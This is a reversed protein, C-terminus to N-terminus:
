ILLYRIDDLQFLGGGNSYCLYPFRWLNGFGVAFGICSLMFDIKKDWSEREEAEESVESSQDISKKEEEM